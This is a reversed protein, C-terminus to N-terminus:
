LQRLVFFVLVDKVIFRARVMTWLVFSFSYIINCRPHGKLAKNVRYLCIYSQLCPSVPLYYVPQSNATLIRFQNNCILKKTTM